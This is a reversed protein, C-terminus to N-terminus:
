FEGQLGDLSYVYRTGDDTGENTNRWKDRTILDHLPAVLDVAADKDQTWAHQDILEQATNNAFLMRQYAELEEKRRMWEWLTYIAHGVADAQSNKQANQWTEWLYRGFDDENYASADAETNQVYEERMVDIDAVSVSDRVEQSSPTPAHIRLPIRPFGPLIPTTGSHGSPIESSYLNNTRGFRSHFPYFGWRKAGETPNRQRDEPLLAPRQKQLIGERAYSYLLADKEHSIDAGHIYVFRHNWWPDTWPPCYEVYEWEGNDEQEFMSKWGLRLDGLPVAPPDYAKPLVLLNIDYLSEWVRGLVDDPVQNPHAIHPAVDKLKYKYTDEPVPFDDDMVWPATHSKGHRSHGPVSM